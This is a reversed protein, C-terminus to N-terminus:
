ISRLIIWSKWLGRTYKGSTISLVNEVVERLVPVAEPWANALDVTAEGFRTFGESIDDSQSLAAVGELVQRLAKMASNPGTSDIWTLKGLFKTAYHGVARRLQELVEPRTTNDGLRVCCAGIIQFLVIDDGGEDIIKVLDLKRLVANLRAKRLDDLRPRGFAWIALWSSDSTPAQELMALVNEIAQNCNDETPDFPAEFIGYPRNLLFSGVEDNARNRNLYLWPSVLRNDDVEVTLLDRLKGMQELSLAQGVDDSGFVYGIGHFLVSKDEILEPNTASALYDSDLRMMREIPQDPHNEAFTKTAIELDVDKSIIIDTLRDAHTWVLTLRDPVSLESWCADNNFAADSWRLVSIFLPAINCWTDFVRNLLQNFKGTDQGDHVLRCLHLAHILQLPTRASATIEDMAAYKTEQPLRLLAQIILKPIPVPLGSLRSFAFHAGQEAILAQTAQDLRKLFPTSVNQSLRLHNLLSNAAPPRFEEFSLSVGGRFKDILKAYHVAASADRADELLQMREALAETSIIRDIESKRDAEPMDFWAQNNEFIKRRQATSRSLVEFAPDSLACKIAGTLSVAHEKDAIRSIEVRKHKLTRVRARGQALAKAVSTWLREGEFSVDAITVVSSTKIGLKHCFDRNEILKHRIKEPFLQVIIRLYRKVAAVVEPPNSGTTTRVDVLGSLLQSLFRVVDDCLQNDELRSGLVEDAVWQLYAKRRSYDLDPQNDRVIQIVGTLLANILVASITRDADPNEVGLPIRIFREIRLASWIWSSRARRVEDPLDPRVWQAVICTEALRRVDMLFQIEAPRGRLADSSEDVKLHEELLMTCALYRRIVALAPTEAVKGDRIPANSLHDLVEGPELPLFMANSARLRLLITRQAQQSILNVARMANLVEYIGIIPNGQNQTQQYGTLNRDDIWVVAESKQPAKLLDFLCKMIPASFPNEEEESNGIGEPGTEGCAPLTIYRGSEIGEGIRRRLAALWAALKEGEDGKGIEERAMELLTTDVQPRYTALVSDILGAGALVTLTNTLFLIHTGPLPPTGTKDHSYTGLHTLANAYAEADLAGANFLGDVIARLTTFRAQSDVDTNRPLHHEVVIGGSRLAAALAAAQRGDLGAIEPVEEQALDTVKIRDNNVAGLIAKMGNVRGPQNHKSKIELGYLAEPLSPSISIPHPLQELLDLLELQAAILLGTIDLHIWWDTIPTGVKVNSPRAGHRILVPSFPSATVDGTNALRYLRALNVNGHEVLLHVPLAGDFYSRQLNVADEQWHRHQEIFEDLTVLRVADTGKQALRGMLDLFPRAEDEIGLRCALDFATTSLEEPIGRKKAHRFLSRALGTDELAIVQALSLAGTSTLCEANTAERIIPLAAALNGTRVLMDAKILRDFISTSEAALISADRLAAGKDGALALAKIRLVRLEHPLSRAPFTSQREELIQLALKPRRTNFAAFVAIRVAEATDFRLLADLRSAIAEWHGSAAILQATKLTIAPIPETAILEEYFRKLPAWDQTRNAHDLLLSMRSTYSLSISTEASLDYAKRAALDALWRDRVTQLEITDFRESFDKVVDEAEQVHGESVLLWALSLIQNPEGKGQRLFKRFSEICHAHDFDFGRALAWEIAGAHTPDEELLEKCRAEADNLRDRLNCLCAIAWTEDVSKREPNLGQNALKEFVSLAANLLARGDDDERVLDLDVPNPSIYWEATVLPSLACAYRIIGGVRQVAPWDPALEEARRIADFADERRGQMLAAVAKLRETEAHKDKLAPHTELIKLADDVRGSELLLAAQLQVGDRSTPRGLIVLGKEAGMRRSALLARLRPEDPKVIADAENALDEAGDIDGRQLRLSAQLRIVRAQTNPVLQTWNKGTRIDELEADIVDLNGCLIGEFARDLRKDMEGSLAVHLAGVQAMVQASLTESGQSYATEVSPSVGCLRPIFETGLYQSVLGPYHRIKEQLQRPGWVEYTVGFVAFRAKEAEIEAARQMSNVASAVILVFKRVKRVKWHNEWHTLFDDSWQPINGKAVNGHCKCSAVEIGDGDTREAIVDIGYQPQRKTGYLDAKSIGPEKEYLACSMEEFADADLEHFAPPKSRNPSPTITM